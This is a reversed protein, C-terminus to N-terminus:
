FFICGVNLKRGGRRVRCPLCLVLWGGALCPKKEELWRSWCSVRHEQPASAVPFARDRNIVLFLHAGLGFYLKRSSVDGRWTSLLGAFAHFCCAYLSNLSQDVRIVLKIAKVKKKAHPQRASKIVALSLAARGERAGRGGGM